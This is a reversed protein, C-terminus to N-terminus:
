GAHRVEPPLAGPSRESRASYERGAWKVRGLLVWRMSNIGIAIFGVIALPHALLGRWSHRMRLALAMRTAVVAGTGVAGPALLETAGLAGFALWVLPMLFASLYLGSVLALAAPHGGIGEYLNKSFGEWVGRAGEYMRCRALAFGDAFVVRQRARKLNRCFAMDDVVDARVAEFGGAATYADARVCLVQGNAALFRPDHTRWILLLPLWATYTLHLLPLICHEAWSGTVQRPVATVAAARYRTVLDGLRELAEPELAVDADMFFLWAGRARKALQHCAYPKGVWGEPLPAGSEVRLLPLESQLRSLIQPTQDTSGDDLVVVELPGAAAAARVAAEISGEENRAPILISVGSLPAGGRRGRPWTALNLLTMALPVLALAACAWATLALPSMTSLLDLTIM